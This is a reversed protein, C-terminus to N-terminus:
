DARAPAPDLNEVLVPFQHNLPGLMLLKWEREVTFKLMAVRRDYVRSYPFNQEVDFGNQIEVTLEYDGAGVLNPDFLFSVLKEGHFDHINGGAQGSSQWFVYYGDSRMIKLSVDAVDVPRNARVHVRIVFPHRERVRYVPQGDVLLQASVVEVDPRSEEIIQELIATHESADASSLTGRYVTRWWEGGVENREVLELDSWSGMTTDALQVKLAESRSISASEFIVLLPLPEGGDEPRRVLIHGGRLPRSSQTLARSEFGKRNHPRGWESRTL